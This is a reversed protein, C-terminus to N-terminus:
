LNKNLFKRKAFSLWWKSPPASPDEFVIDPLRSATERRLQTLM